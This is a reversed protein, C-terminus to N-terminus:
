GGKRALWRQSKRNKQEM